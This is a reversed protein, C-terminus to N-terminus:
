TFRRPNFLESGPVAEGDAVVRADYGHRALDKELGLAIDPEDEVILIRPM